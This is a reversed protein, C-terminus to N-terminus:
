RRRDCEVVLSSDWIVIMSVIVWLWVRFVPVPPLAMYGPPLNGSSFKSNLCVPMPKNLIALEPTLV